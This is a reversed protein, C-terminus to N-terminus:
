DKFFDIKLDHDQLHKGLVRLPVREECDWCLPHGGPPQAEESWGHEKMMHRKLHFKNLHILGVCEPCIVERNVRKIVWFMHYGSHMVAHSELESISVIERCIQCLRHRVRENKHDSELHRGLRSIRQVQACNNFPCIAHRGENIINWKGEPLMKKREAKKPLMDISEMSRKVNKKIDELDDWTWAIFTGHFNDWLEVKEHKTKHERHKPLKSRKYCTENAFLKWNKSFDERIFQKGKKYFYDSAVKKITTVMNLAVDRASGSLHNLRQEEEQFEKMSRTDLAGDPDVMRYLIQIRQWTTFGGVIWRWDKNEPRYRNMKYCLLALTASNVTIWLPDGSRINRSLWAYIRKILQGEVFMNIKSIKREGIEGKFWTKCIGFKKRLKEREEKGVYKMDQYKVKEHFSTEKDPNLVSAIGVEYLRTTNGVTLTTIHLTLPHVEKHFVSPKYKRLSKPPVGGEGDEEEESSIITPEDAPKVKKEKRAGRQAKAEKFLSYAMEFGEAPYEEM